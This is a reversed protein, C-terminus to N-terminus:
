SLADRFAMTTSRTRSVQHAALRGITTRESALLRQFSPADVANIQWYHSHQEGAGGTLEVPIRRNQNLPVFAEGPGPREGFLAVTPSTVVGGHQFKKLPVTTELTKSTVGGEGFLGVIGEIAKILLLKVVIRQLETLMLTAFERFAERASKTGNVISVFADSILDLGGHVLFQAAQQGFQAFDLLNEKAKEVGEAFGAFFDGFTSGAAEGGGEEGSTPVSTKKGSTGRFLALLEETEQRLTKLTERLQDGVTMGRGENYTRWLEALREQLELMRSQQEPTAIDEIQGQLLGLQDKVMQIDILIGTLRLNGSIREVGDLLRAIALFVLELLRVFGVGLTKLFDLLRDRNVAIFAALREMIESLKDGFSAFAAFRVGRLAAELRALADKFRAAKQLGDVDLVLGLAHAEEGLLRIEDATMSLIPGLERGSRGFADMRTAVRTAPDEIRELGERMRALLEIVDIKGGEGLPLETLSIGLRDFAIEMTRSEDRAHQLNQLMKGVGKAMVEFNTGGIEAIHALEQLSETTVQIRDSTKIIEDLQDATQVLGHFARRVALVAFFGVFASRLISVSSLVRKFAGAARKAFTAIARVMKPTVKSVFDRMKAQIELTRKETSTPM